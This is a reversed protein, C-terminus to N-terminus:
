KTKEEEEYLAKINTKVANRQFNYIYLFRHVM